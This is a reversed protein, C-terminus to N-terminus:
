FKFITLFDGRWLFDIKSFKSFNLDDRSRGYNASKWFSAEGIGSDTGLFCGWWIATLSFFNEGKYRCVHRV